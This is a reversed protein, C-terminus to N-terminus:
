AFSDSHEHHPSRSLLRSRFQCGRIELQALSDVRRKSLNTRKPLGFSPPARYLVTGLQTSFTAEGSGVHGLNQFVAHPSCDKGPVPEGSFPDVYTASRCQWDTRIVIFDPTPMPRAAPVAVSGCAGLLVGVIGILVRIVTGKM